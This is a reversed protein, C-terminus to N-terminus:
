VVGLDSRLVFSSVYGNISTTTPSTSSAFFLTVISRARHACCLDRLSDEVFLLRMNKDKRRGLADPDFNYSVDVNVLCLISFTDM